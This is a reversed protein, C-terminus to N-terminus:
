GFRRIANLVDTVTADFDDAEALGADHARKALATLRCGVRALSRIMEGSTANQRARPRRGLSAERIYCAVPRGALRALESVQALEDASFRILKPHTRRADDVTDLMEM